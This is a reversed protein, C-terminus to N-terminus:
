KTNTKGLQKDLEVKIDNKVEDLMDMLEENGVEGNEARAYGYLLYLISQKIMRRNIDQVYKKIEKEM